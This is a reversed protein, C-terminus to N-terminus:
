DDSGTGEMLKLQATLSSDRVDLGDVFLELLRREFAVKVDEQDVEGNVRVPVRGDEEDSEEDFEEGVDDLRREVKRAERVGEMEREEELGRLFRGLKKVHQRGEKGPMFGEAVWDGEEEVDESPPALSSGGSREWLLPWRLRGASARLPPPLPVTSAYFLRRSRILPVSSRARPPILPSFPLLLSTPLIHLHSTLFTLPPTPLTISPPLSLYSLIRAVDGPPLTTVSM